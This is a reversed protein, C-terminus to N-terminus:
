REYSNSSRILPPFYFLLFLKMLRREFVSELYFFFIVGSHLKLPVSVSLNNFTLKELSEDIFNLGFKESQTIVTRLDNGTNSGNELM